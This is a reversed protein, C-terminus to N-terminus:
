ERSSELLHIQAQARGGPARRWVGNSTHVINGWTRSAQYTILFFCGPFYMPQGSKGHRGPFFGTEGEPSSSNQFGQVSKHSQKKPSPYISCIQTRLSSLCVRVNSLAQCEHFMTFISRSDERPALPCVTAPEPIEEVCPANAAGWPGLPGTKALPGPGTAKANGRDETVQKVDM